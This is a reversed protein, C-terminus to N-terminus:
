EQFLDEDLCQQNYTPRNPPINSAKALPLRGEHDRPTIYCISSDQTQYEAGAIDSSHIFCPAYKTIDQSLENLGGLRTRVYM